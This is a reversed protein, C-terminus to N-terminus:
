HMNLNEYIAVNQFWPAKFAVATSFRPLFKTSKSGTFILFLTYVPHRSSNYWNPEPGFRDYVKSPSQEAAQFILCQIDFVKILLVQPREVCMPCGLLEGLVQRNIGEKM